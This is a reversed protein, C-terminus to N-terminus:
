QINELNNQMWFNSLTGIALLGYIIWYCIKYAKFSDFAWTLVLPVLTIVFMYVVSDVISVNILLNLSFSENAQSLSWPVALLYSYILYPFYKKM